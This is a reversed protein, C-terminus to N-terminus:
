LVIYMHALTGCGGLLIQLVDLISNVNGSAVAFSLLVHLSDVDVSVFAEEPLSPSRSHLVCPSHTVSCM